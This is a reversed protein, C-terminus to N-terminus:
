PQGAADSDRQLARLDSLDPPTSLDLAPSPLDPVTTEQESEAVSPGSSNAPRVEEEPPQAAIAEVPTSAPLSDQGSARVKGPAEPAAPASQSSPLDFGLGEETEPTESQSLESGPVVAEPPLEAGTVAVPAPESAPASVASPESRESPSSALPAPLQPSADGGRGFDSGVPLDIATAQPQDEDEATAPEATGEEIVSEATAGTAATNDTGTKVEQPATGAGTDPGPDDRATEAEPVSEPADGAMRDESGAVGIEKPLPALLSLAGLGIASIVAGHLLGTWFGRAM